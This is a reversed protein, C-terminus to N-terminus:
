LMRLLSDVERGLEQELRLIESTAERDRLSTLQEVDRKIIKRASRLAEVAARQNGAKFAKKAKLFYSHRVTAHEVIDKCVDPFAIRFKGTRLNRQINEVKQVLQDTQMVYRNFDTKEQAHADPLLLNTTFIILLISLLNKM